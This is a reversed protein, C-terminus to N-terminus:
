GKGPFQRKQKLVNWMQWATFRGQACVYSNEVQGESTEFTRTCFAKTENEEAQKTLNISIKM